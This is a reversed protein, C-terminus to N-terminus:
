RPDDVPKRSAHAFLMGVLIGAGFIIFFLAARPLALTWFLFQIEVSAVNQLTFLIVLAVVLISLWYRINKAM